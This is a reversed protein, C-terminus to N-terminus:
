NENFLPQRRTDLAKYRKQHISLNEPRARLLRRFASIVSPVGLRSLFLLCCLQVCHSLYDLSFTLKSIDGDLDYPIENSGWKLGDIPKYTKSPDNRARIRKTNDDLKVDGEVYSDRKERGVSNM